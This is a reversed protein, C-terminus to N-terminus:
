LRISTFAACVAEAADVLRPGPRWLHDANIAVFQRKALARTGAYVEADRALNQNAGKKSMGRVIVDPNRALLVERSPEFVLTPASAFINEGGCRTIIDSVFHDRNVSTLPLQGLEIFVSVKHANANSSPSKALRAIRTEIEDAAKRARAETGALAGIARIAAGIDNLGNVGITEVRM